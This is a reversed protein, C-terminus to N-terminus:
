SNSSSITFTVPIYLLPFVPSYFAEVRLMTPDSPDPEAAVGRFAVIIQNEVLSNLLATLALEVDQARSTLFKLGIFRDLTARTQQQVFDMIAVISPTQTIRNSMNTTLAHRVELFPTRDQLVTVGSVALQNMELEDLSRNLRSFGVVRRRTLPTAVDNAPSVIVGALAAAMFSGDVIFDTVEGLENTVSLIASDPYVVLARESNLNKALKMADQPRTGSAVGFMARCENRHRPASQIECHKTVAAMVSVDTTLPVLISPRVGVQIPKKLEDLVQIYSTATAQQSNPAKKVQKAGVIAAGNLLALWCALTLPNEPSLDGYNSQVDQISTFLRPSFDEKMYDYSIYYFDGISPEEGSKDYTTIVATDNVAVDGLSSIQMELGQIARNVLASGVNMRDECVLTFSEGLVYDGDESPLVTFHLGTKQDIYTQGVVGQGSSGQPSTSSVVFGQTGDVGVALDGVELGFGTDNLASNPSSMVTISTDTGFGFSSIQVFNGVGLSFVTKAIASHVFEGSVTLLSLTSSGASNDDWADTHNNLVAVVEEASPRRQGASQNQVFGLYQNAGGTGIEISSQITTDHSTLRIRNGEVGVTLIDLGGSGLVNDIANAADSVSAIGSFENGQVMREVGDVYVVFPLQQVSLNAIMAASIQSSLLTAGKNVAGETGTASEFAVFGLLENASGNRILVSSVDSPGSPTVRSRLLLYDADPHKIVRAIKVNQVELGTQWGLITELEDGANSTINIEVTESALISITGDSNAVVQFDNSPNTLSGASLGSETAISSQIELAADEANYTGANDITGTYLTGNLAVSWTTDTTLVFNAGGNALDQESGQIVATTPVSRTILDAFVEIGWTGSPITLSVNAGDIQFEFRDNVNSTVVFDGDAELPKSALVAFAAQSLTVNVDDNVLARDGDNMTLRLIDSTTAFLDYPGAERNTLIAPQGGVLSFTATVIENVGNFGGVFADPRSQVGSPWQITRTSASTGFRVNFLERNGVSSLIKVKGSQTKTLTYTDDSLRNYYYTAYVKHGAPLPNKTTVERTQSDVKTVEVAGNSLAHTVDVGHYIKVLNTNSTANDRGSGDTPVRSLLVRFSSEQPPAVNRDLVRSVEELYFKSDVLQASIQQEGFPVNSGSATFQGTSVTYASGWLIRDDLVVYDLGSVYDTRGPSNGVRRTSVIGQHPLHDFTDQYTNWYYRVVVTSGVTPPESLIIQRNSGDVSEPIVPFGNVLVELDNVDTTTIGGNSGDVIPGNFVHFIRNRNSKQGLSFGFLANATGDLIELSGDAILQLREQGQNDFDLTATLGAVGASNLNTALDSVTTLGAQLILDHVVGNVRLILQDNVGQVVVYPGTESAKLIAPTDTVQGSVDDESLTDTRNFHYTVKILSNEPPPIQLTIVGNEGDVAAVVVPVGDVTVSVDQPRNTLIGQGNGTVLPFNQVKFKNSIGNVSILTPNDHSSLNELFRASVEENRILQDATSSSGRVLEFNELSLTEKGTGIFLPVQLGTPPGTLQRNIKTETYVGPPAYSSFPGNSM